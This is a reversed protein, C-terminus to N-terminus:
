ADQDWNWWVTLYAMYEMPNSIPVVETQPMKISAVSPLTILVRVSFFSLKRVVGLSQALSCFGFRRSLMKFDM